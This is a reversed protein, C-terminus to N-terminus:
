AGGDCSLADWLTKRLEGALSLIYMGGTRVYALSSGDDTIDFQWVDSADTNLPTSCTRDVRAATLHGNAPFIVWEDNESWVISAGLAKTPDDFVPQVSGSELDIVHVSHYRYGEPNVETKIIAASDSNHAWSITTVQGVGDRGYPFERVLTTSHTTTDVIQVVSRAFEIYVLRNGEPSWSAQQGGPGVLETVCEDLAVIWIGSPGAPYGGEVALSSGDPSWAVGSALFDEEFCPVPTSSKSAYDYIFVDQRPSPGYGVAAVRVGDPAWDPSYVVRLPAPPRVYGSPKASCAVPLLCGVLASAILTVSASLSRMESLSGGWVDHSTM